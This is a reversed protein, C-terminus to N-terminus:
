PGRHYDDAFAPYGATWDYSSIVIVGDDACLHEYPSDASPASTGNVADGQAQPAASATPSRGIASPSAETVPGVTVAVHPDPCVAATTYPSALLVRYDAVGDTAVYQLHGGSGWARNDNLVSLVYNRFAGADASVGDEVAVSVWRVDGKGDDPEDTGPVM